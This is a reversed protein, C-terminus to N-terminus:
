SCAYDGDFPHGFWQTIAVAGGTFSSLACNSQAGSLNRAGPIWDAMVPFTPGGTAGYTAGYTTRTGVIQDWQSRTSYIGIPSTSGGAGATDLGALMGQIAAINMTTNSWSNATEVDLWWPYASAA